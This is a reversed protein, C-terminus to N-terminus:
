NHEQEHQQQKAYAALRAKAAETARNFGRRDVKAEPGIAAVVISDGVRRYFARWPSNGARPRLERLNDAGRVASQHPFPLNIGLADLKLLASDMAAREKVPLADKEVQADPLIRV